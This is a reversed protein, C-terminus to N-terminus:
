GDERGSQWINQFSVLLIHSPEHPHISSHYAEGRLFSNSIFYNNWRSLRVHLKEIIPLWFAEKKPNGNLPLGLYTCPWSGSSCGWAKTIKNITRTCISIGFVSSKNYNINLGSAIEFFKVIKHLNKIYFPDKKSFLLTDDAFLHHDIRILGCNSVYGSIHGQEEGHHLLRSFVDTILIFLFPSLRDGQELRKYCHIQEETERKHHHLLKYYLYLGYDM